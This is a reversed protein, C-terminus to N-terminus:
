WSESGHCGGECSQDTANWSMEPMNVDPHGNVHLAPNAIADSGSATDAHCEACDYGDHRGHEGSLSGSAHCSECTQPGASVSVTGAATQGDGHCYLNSCSLSSAAWTGGTAIAVEAVAPTFDDFLHGPTLADTPQAHCQACDVASLRGSVHAPHAPFSTTALDVNGDIDRPPAGTTDVVGGHCYTCSTEWGSVHCDSCAVGSTGGSLDTGHCSRCDSGIQLLTDPGHVDAADYGVPHYREATTVPPTDGGGPTTATDGGGGGGTGTGGGPRGTDGGPPGDGGSPGGGGCAALLMLTWCLRM